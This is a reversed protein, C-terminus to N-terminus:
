LQKELPWLRVDCPHSKLILLADGSEKGRWIYIANLKFTYFHLKLAAFIKNIGYFSVNNQVSDVYEDFINGDSKNNSLDTEAITWNENQWRLMRATVCLKYRHTHGMKYRFLFLSKWGVEGPAGTSALTLELRLIFLYNYGNQPTPHFNNDMRLGCRNCRQFKSHIIEGWVKNSIHYSIWAAM